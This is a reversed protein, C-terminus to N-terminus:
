NGQWQRVSDFLEQMPRLQHVPLWCHPSSTRPSLFSGGGRYLRDAQQRFSGRSIWGALIIEAGSLWLNDWEMPQIWHTQKLRQSHVGLRGPPLSTSHLYSLTYYAHSTRYKEGAALSFQEAVFARHADLGGLELYLMCPQEHWITLDGLPAWLAPLFWAPPLPHFLYLTKGADQARRITQSGTLASALVCTFILLDLDSHTSSFLEEEPVFASASLLRSPDQQLRHVQSAQSILLSQLVCRRNGLSVDVQQPTSFPAEAWNQYALHLASLHRRFALEAATRAALRHLRGSLAKGLYDDKPPFSRCAHHIGAPTLDPSYPLHVFDSVTLM